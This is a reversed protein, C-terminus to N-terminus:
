EEVGKLKNIVQRVNVRDPDGIDARIYPNEVMFLRVVAMVTHDELADDMGECLIEDVADRHDQESVIWHYASWTERNDFGLYQEEM